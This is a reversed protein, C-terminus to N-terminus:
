QAGEQRRPWLGTGKGMGTPSSVVPANLCGPVVRSVAEAPMDYGEFMAAMVTRYEVPSLAHRNHTVARSLGRSSVFHFRGINKRAAVSPPSSLTLKGM